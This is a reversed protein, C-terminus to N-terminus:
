DTITITKSSYTVTKGFVASFMGIPVYINDNIATSSAIPAAALTFSSTSSGSINLKTAATTGAKLRIGATSNKVVYEGTRGLYSVSLGLVNAIEQLPVMTQGGSTTPANKCATTTGSYVIKYGNTITTDRMLSISSIKITEASTIDAWIAWFTGPQFRLGTLNGKWKANKGVPIYFDYYNGDTYSSTGGFYVRKNTDFTGDTDTTFYIYGGGWYKLKDSPIAMNVKIYTVDYLSTDAPLNNLKIMANKGNESQEPKIYMKNSTRSMSTIGQYASWDNYDTSSSFSWTKKATLNSTSQASNERVTTTKRDQDVMKNVRAKQSATVTHSHTGSSVFVERIADLYDFGKGITPAMYHGEGFENWSALNLLKKSLKKTTTRANMVSAFTNKLWTLEEKFEAKTANYGAEGDWALNDKSPMLTPVFDLNNTNSASVESNIVVEQHKIPYKIGWGYQGISDIDYDAYATFASLPYASPMAMIYPNGVGAATCASRFRSLGANKESTTSGFMALFQDMSYIGVIPRGDVKLYRSDKFYYEIWNPLVYDFFDNYYYTKLADTNPNIISNEYMICFPMSSSYKANMYGEYLSDGQRVNNPKYPTADADTSYKINPYICVLQYDIGHETMWKIEWDSVEPDGEDYAGLISMRDPTSLINDWSQNYQGPTWLPCMQMGILYGNSKSPISPVPVYDDEFIKKQYLKVDDFVFPNASEGASIFINDVSSIAGNIAVDNLILKNNVYVDATSGTTDFEVKLGYWINAMYNYLNTTNGGSVFKYNTGDSTIKFLETEGNRVALSVGSRKVPQLAMTEFVLNGKQAAFNKKGSIAGGSTDFKMSYRDPMRSNVRYVDTDGGGTKDFTWDGPAEDRYNYFLECVTYNSYVKLMRNLVKITGSDSTSIDFGDVSNTDTVFPRNAVVVNGNIRLSTIEKNALDLEAKVYYGSELSQSVSTPSYAMLHIKADNPQELCLDGEDTVIGLVTNKGDLLRFAVGDQKEDISFDFEATVKGGTIKTFSRYAEGPLISSNDNFGVNILGRGDPSALQVGIRDWSSSAGFNESLHIRKNFAVSQLIEELERQSVKTLACNDDGFVFIKYTLDEASKHNMTFTFSNSQGALLSSADCLEFDYLSSDEEYVACIVKATTGEYRNNRVTASVKVNGSGDISVTRGLVSYEDGAIYSITFGLEKARTAAYCTPDDVHVKIGSLSCNAFANSEISTIGSNLYLNRLGLCYKFTDDKITRMSAPMTVTSLARCQLFAQNLTEIGNPINVTELKSCYGFTTSLTGTLATSLHARELNRCDWFLAYGISTVSDPMTFSTLGRMDRFVEYGLSTVTNPITLSTVGSQGYFAQNGIATVTKGNLTSPVSVSGSLAVKSGDMNGTYATGIITANEGSETWSYTDNYYCITPTTGGGSYRYATSGVPVYIRIGTSNDAFARYKLADSSGAANQYFGAASTSGTLVITKIYNTGLGVETNSFPRIFTTIGAPIVISTMKSAGLFTTQMIHSNATGNGSTLNASLRVSTLATCGLFASADMTVISDPMIVKTVSTNNQFCSDALTTVTKGGLTDPITVEGELTTGTVTANGGSVSYYFGNEFGDGGYTEISATFSGTYRTPATGDAPYRITIGTIGDLWARAATTDSDGFFNAQSTSTLTVTRVASNRFTGYFQTIGSPIEVSALSSCYMFTNTLYGTGTADGTLASPLHISTLGSCAYFQATGTFKTITDPLTLSTMGSTQTGKNKFADGLQTVTYTTASYTVTSPVTVEGSLSAAEIETLTVTSSGANVTYTFDGSTFTAGAVMYTEATASFNSGNYRTPATGNYPYRITIGTTGNSWARAGATDSSEYFDTESTGLLKVTRVGSNQFTGYLKTIGAPIEVYELNPCYKFSGRLRGNTQGEDGELNAPLHISTLGTCGYFTNVGTFMTISDPLTISTIEKIKDNSNNAYSGQSFVGGLRTVTYTDGGYTVTGPVVVAGSLSAAILNKTVVVTSTDALVKYEFTGDDFTADKALRASVSVPVLAMLMCLTVFLGLLKKGLNKRM